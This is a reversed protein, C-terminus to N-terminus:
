MEALRPGLVLQFVSVVDHYGQYYHLKSAPEATLPDASLDLTKYILSKLTKRMSERKATDFKETVDYNHMSRPVDADVVKAAETPVAGGKVLFQDRNRLGLLYPWVQKRLADDCAGHRRIHEIVFLVDSDKDTLSKSLKNRIVTSMKSQQRVVGCRFHPSFAAWISKEFFLIGHLLLM